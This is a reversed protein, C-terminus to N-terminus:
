EAKLMRVENINSFDIMPHASFRTFCNWTPFRKTM